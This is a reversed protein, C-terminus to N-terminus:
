ANFWALSIEFASIPLTVDPNLRGPNPHLTVMGEGPWRGGEGWRIPLPVPHPASKFELMDARGSEIVVSVEASLLSGPTPGRDASRM